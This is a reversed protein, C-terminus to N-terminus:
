GGNAALAIVDTSLTLPARPAAVIQVPTEFGSAARPHIFGSVPYSTTGLDRNGAFWIRVRSWDGKESVDIARVDRDVGGRRSWNAHNLLVERDSIIKSVMAVHGLRMKGYGPMAMVAGVAPTRNREYKGAAQAWWTHANGRIQIDSVSRAYTVCQWGKAQAPAVSVLAFLLAASFLKIKHMSHSGLGQNQIVTSHSHDAACGLGSRHPSRPAPHFAPPDCSM